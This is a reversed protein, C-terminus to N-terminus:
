SNFNLLIIKTEEPLDERKKLILSDVPVTDESDTEDLFPKVSNATSKEETNTLGPIVFSPSIKKAAEAAKKANEPTGDVSLFLIDVKGLKELRKESPMTWGNTFFCVRWNELSIFWCSGGITKIDVGAVEYEGPNFVFFTEKRGKPTIKERLIPVASVLIDAETKKLPFGLAVTIEKGRIKFFNASYKIEM